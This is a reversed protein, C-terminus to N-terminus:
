QRRGVLDMDLMVWNSYVPLGVDMDFISRSLKGTVRFKLTGGRKDVLDIFFRASRTIGKATLRGEITASKAGTRKVQTSVFRISPHNAADFVPPSRIFEEIRPDAAKVSAADISIDVESRGINSGNLEFSGRFKAFTGEVPTGGLQDVSFHIVSSPQVKYRGAANTFDDAIAPCYPLIMLVAAFLLRLM